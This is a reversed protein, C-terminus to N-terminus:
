REDTSTPNVEEAALLRRFHRLLAELRAQGGPQALTAQWEALLL